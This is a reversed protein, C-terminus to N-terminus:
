PATDGEEVLATFDSGAKVSVHTSGNHVPIGSEKGRPMVFGHANASGSCDVTSDGFRYYLIETTSGHPDSICGIAVRTSGTLLAVRRAAAAGSSPTTLPTVKLSRMPRDSM